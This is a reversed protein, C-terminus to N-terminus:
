KGFIAFANLLLGLLVWGTWDARGQAYFGNYGIHGIHLNHWYGNECLKWSQIV